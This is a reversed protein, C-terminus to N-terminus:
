MYKIVCESLSKKQKYSILDNPYGVSIVAMLDLSNDLQLLSKVFTDRNLIEGIWCAGLKLDTIKLLMNQICAGIAQVDKLYNYSVTKDLFVIILCDAEKVFSEYVTLKALDKLLERNEQVVVFKWPQGNKGSPAALGAKLISEIFCKSVTAESYKRVSRRNEIVGDLNNKLVVKM